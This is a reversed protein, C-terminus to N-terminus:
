SATEKAEGPYPRVKMGTRVPKDHPPDHGRHLGLFMAVAAFRPMMRRFFGSAM